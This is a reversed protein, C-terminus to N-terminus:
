MTDMKDLAEQANSVREFGTKDLVGLFEEVAGTVEDDTEFINGRFEAKLRLFLSFDSPALDPAYAPDKIWTQCLSVLCLEYVTKFFSEKM